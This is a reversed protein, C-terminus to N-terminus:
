PILICLEIRRDVNIIVFLNVQQVIQAIIFKEGPPNMFYMIKTMLGPAPEVRTATNSFSTERRSSFM